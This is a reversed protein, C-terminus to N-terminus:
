SGRAVAAAETDLVNVWADVLATNRAAVALHAEARLSTVDDYVPGVCSRAKTVVQSSTRPDEPGVIPDLTSLLDHVDADRQGACSAWLDLIDGFGPLKTTRSDAEFTLISIKQRLAERYFPDIGGVENFARYWCSEPQWTTSIEYTSDDPLRIVRVPPPTSSGDDGIAAELYALAYASPPGDAGDAPPAPFGKNAMCDDFAGQRALEITRRVEPEQLGTLSFTSPEAPAGRLIYSPAPDNAQALRAAGAYMGGVAVAGFLLAGRRRM